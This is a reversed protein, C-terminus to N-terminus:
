LESAESIAAIIKALPTIHGPAFPKDFRLECNGVEATAQAQMALAHLISEGGRCLDAFEKFTVNM